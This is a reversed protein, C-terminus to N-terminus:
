ALKNGHLGFNEIYDSKWVLFSFSENLIFMSMIKLNNISQTM